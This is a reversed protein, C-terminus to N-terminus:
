SANKLTQFKLTMLSDIEAKHKKGVNSICDDISSKFSSFDSHYKNYLCKKKVYRWLREILNLNPSYPPLFLLEIDHAKAFDMVLKCRLYRANDMVLTITSDAYHELLLTMLSIISNANIYTNNTVTFLEHSVANFAGLVNYRQRGSPSKVFIRVFSWLYGLFAALVFHSADVFLLECKGARAEEIKPQLKEVLFEAQADVDAKAPIQATKLRKLGIKKLFKGVSYESRQIGTLEKIRNAAEKITAPPNARFEDEIIGQHKSLESAPQYFNIVKLAEIGGSKYQYFYERLTDQCIGLIKGIDGHSLGQSKLLLADMKRQVRPHPYNYREQRLQDITEKTFDIHIM